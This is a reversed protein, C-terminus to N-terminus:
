KTSFGVIFLGFLGLGVHSASVGILTPQRSFLWGWFLGVPFVLVALTFSVHLHTSSFMLTSLIISQWVRHKSTLFMMFSAQMGSRAVMEQVPAFLSYAIVAFMIAGPSANKSQYFDFLPKGIMQPHTHILIFKALVIVAALPLSFLFAEKLAPRWNHLTFGYASPPFISTKINIYLAVAFAILIPVTVMTTDPAKEALSKTASLAFMYLCTGILVRSMFRGMEARTEAEQLKERLTKVTTENTTRLRRGMEYALNIKMQVDVSADGKSFEELRKIPLVLVAADTIARVSASRPGSDLLSVEGISMGPSLVALRHFRESNVGAEHKLVELTGSEIIFIEEADEGEHLLYTGAAVQRIESVSEALSSLHQETLQSFLANGSLLARLKEPTITM